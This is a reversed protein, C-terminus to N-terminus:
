NKKIKTESDEPSKPSKPLKDIKKFNNFNKVFQTNIKDDSLRENLKNILNVRESTIERDEIVLTMLYAEMAQSHITVWREVMGLVCSPSGQGHANFVENFYYEMFIKLYLKTSSFLYILSGYVIQMWSWQGPEGDRIPQKVSVLIELFEQDVCRDLNAKLTTKESESYELRLAIFESIARTFNNKLYDKDIQNLRQNQKLKNVIELLKNFFIIIPTTNINLELDKLSGPSSISGNTYQDFIRTLKNRNNIILQARAHTENARQQLESFQLERKTDNNMTKEVYRTGDEREIQHPVLETNRTNQFDTNDNVVCNRFDVGKIDAVQFVTGILNCGNFNANTLDVHTLNTATLDKNQLQTFDFGQLGDASQFNCAKINTNFMSTSPILHFIKDNLKFYDYPKFLEKISDVNIGNREYESNKM